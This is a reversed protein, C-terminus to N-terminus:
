SKRWSTWTRAALYSLECRNCLNVIVEIKEPTSVACAAVDMVGAGLDGAAIGAKVEGIANDIIAIARVRHGGKDDIAVELQHRAARLNDLANYMHPQNAAHANEVLVGGAAMIGFAFALLLHALNFKMIRYIPVSFPPLCGGPWASLDLRAIRLALGAVIM